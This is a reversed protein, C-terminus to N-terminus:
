IIRKLNSRVIKDWNAQWDNPIEDDNNYQDLNSKYKKTRSWPVKIMYGTRRGWSKGKPKMIYEGAEVNTGINVEITGSLTDLCKDINDEAHISSIFNGTDQPSVRKNSFSNSSRDVGTINAADTLADMAAPKKYHNMNVGPGVPESVVRLQAMVSREIRRGKKAATEYVFRNLRQKLEANKSSAM